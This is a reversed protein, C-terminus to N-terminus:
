QGGGQKSSLATDTPTIDVYIVEHDRGKTGKWLTEIHEDTHHRLIMINATTVLWNVIASRRTPGVTRVDIKGFSRVAFGSAIM